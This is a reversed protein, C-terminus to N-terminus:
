EYALGDLEPGNLFEQWNLKEGCFPCDDPYGDNGDPLQMGCNECRLVGDECEIVLVPDNRYRNAIERVERSRRLIVERKANINTQDALIDLANAAKILNEYEEKTLM